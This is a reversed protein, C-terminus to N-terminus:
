DPLGARGLIDLYRELEESDQFPECARVQRLSADPNKRMAEAVCRQAEEHQGLEEHLAALRFDSFINEPSCNLREQDIRIADDYRGILRYSIGLIGMYWDPYFPSFRMAKDILSCAEEPKGTYTLVMGLFALADAVNPGLEVARRGMEEAEEFRRQHLRIGGLFAHVDAQGDDLALSKECLAAGQELSVEASPSWGAKADTLHTWALLSWAPAFSPDHGLAEELLARAARNDQRNFRRLLTQAGVYREWARVDDTQRRRVRAQEGETLQVQLATVIEQTIEDQLDFIDVVNRDYREAWLHHGTPADILQATIRIREGARRVSGELVYRVGLERAVDRLKVEKGKYTYVSTRDTVFMEGIKSLGTIIEETMGDAFFEQEDDRSMNVFPLVAVSPKEATESNDANGSWGGGSRSSGTSNVRYTRVPQVINKVEQEGLYDYAFPLKNGLADHVAGSICIGGPKALGELRAAVNVGDGYLDDGEVLVDGLNIGIRLEIPPEGPAASNRERAGNQVDVAFAVADVVSPFEALIGDGMLKVVRGNRAGIAPGILEERLARLRLVTGAEDQGMLRSYGVVDAQLIAALRRPLHPQDPAM